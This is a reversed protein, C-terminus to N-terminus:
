SFDTMQILYTAGVPGLGLQILEERMSLFRWSGKFLIPLSGRSFFKYQQFKLNNSLFDPKALCLEARVISNLNAKGTQGKQTLNM